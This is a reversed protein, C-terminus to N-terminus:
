VLKEFKLLYNSFIERAKLNNTQKNLDDVANFIAQRVNDCYSRMVVYDSCAICIRDINVANLLECTYAKFLEIIKEKSNLFIPKSFALSKVKKIWPCITRKDKRICWKM